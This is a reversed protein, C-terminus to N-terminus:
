LHLDEQLRFYLSICFLEINLLNGVFFFQHIWIFDDILFSSMLCISFVDDIILYSFNNKVLLLNLLWNSNYHLIYNCM